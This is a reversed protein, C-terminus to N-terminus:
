SVIFIASYTIVFAIIEAWFLPKCELFSKGGRVQVAIYMAWVLWLAILLPVNCIVWVTASLACVATAYVHVDHEYTKFHPAAGVFALGMCSFFVLFQFYPNGVELWTPLLTFAVVWLTITFIWGHKLEYFTSSISKPVGKCMFCTAAIYAALVCLSVIAPIM